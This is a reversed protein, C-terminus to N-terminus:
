EGGGSTSSPASGRWRDGRDTVYRRWVFPWPVVAWIVVGVLIASAKEATAADMGGTTWLPVAVVVLWILKWASEFLLLPLMRVPHRVGLFALLSMALLMCEVIGEDLPGPQDRQVFAPWKRVALGIGMFLYGVRLAYLQLLSLGRATGARAADPASGALREGAAATM